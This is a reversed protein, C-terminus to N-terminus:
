RLQGESLNLVRDVRAAVRDSHTVLVIPTGDRHRLADLTDLVHAQTDHDLSATSEDCVLMAPAAAVARALAVRHRQGGSLRDPTRGFLEAPLAFRDAIEDLTWAPARGRRAAVALARTLAHRVTEHPNLASRADQGVYALYPQGARVRTAADWSIPSGHVLLRGADPPALGCLARALSTKGSGSVGRIGLLEGVGIDARAGDLIRTSGYRVTVGDVTVATKRDESPVPCQTAPAPPAATRPPAPSIRGRDMMLTEDAIRDVLALDHSILLVAPRWPLGTFQRSIRLATGPDLGSTPEDLLVLTPRTVLTWALVARQAQGGSLQAPYRHLLRPDLAADRAAVEVREARGTRDDQPWAIRAATRLLAAVRRRPDLASAPDQPVYGVARGRLRRRGAPRFPDHGAVQVTGATRRLGRGLHGLLGLALTTKGSGSPGVLGTVRGPALELDVADLIRTGDPATVSLGDVRAVTRM